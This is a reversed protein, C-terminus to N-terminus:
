LDVVGAEARLAAVVRPLVALFADVDAEAVGRPLSVRVNGHTLVGMAALVHSPELSSTTCASGSTVAFGERDLALVLSEGDVYLCSFTVVHPLRDDPHGVVEVDPVTAAVQRRIREVLGALRASETGMARNVAELASAAAVIAPVSPFGAVRHGEREDSPSPSRWRVGRRAALVGVGSPGGWKHASATLLSWGPPPDIRGVSQAADVHLPVGRRACADAVAEVPQLTGVESNGHQLSALATDARLAREYDAADVRGTSDVGVTTVAGGDAEHWRAAELVASHEVASTVLHRATAARGRLTGLVALHAAATGSACFSVEDAHAGIVGAVSERAADLLLRARRAEGYLRAPDAWGQDIAALLATRATPHMPEGSAADLYAV